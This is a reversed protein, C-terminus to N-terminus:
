VLAEKAAKVPGAKLVKRAPKARITIPEKTFPNIAEREKTTPTKVVVFRAMGPIVFIGNGKVEMHGVATLVNLVGVVDKRALRSSHENAITQVLPPKTLTKPM